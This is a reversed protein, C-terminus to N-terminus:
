DVDALPVTGPRSRERRLLHSRKMVAAQARESSLEGPTKGSVDAVSYSGIYVAQNLIGPAMNGQLALLANIVTM